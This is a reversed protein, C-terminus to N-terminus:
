LWIRQIVYLGVGLGIIGAILYLSLQLIELPLRRLNETRVAKYSIAVLICLPLLMWLLEQFNLVMPHYFLTWGSV